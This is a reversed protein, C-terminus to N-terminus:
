HPTLVPFLTYHIIGVRSIPKQVIDGFGFVRFRTLEFITKRQARGGYSWGFFRYYSLVVACMLIRASGRVVQNFLDVVAVLRTM